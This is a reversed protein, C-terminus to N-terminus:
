SILLEENSLASNYNKRILEAGKKRYEEVSKRSRHLEDGVDAVTRGSVYIGSLVSKYPEPLVQFCVYIRSMEQREEFLRNLMNLTLETESEKLKEYRSLTDSLDTVGSPQTKASATGQRFTAQRVLGEDHRDSHLMELLYEISKKNKKMLERYNAIVRFIRTDDM